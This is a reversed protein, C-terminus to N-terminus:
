TLETELRGDNSVLQVVKREILDRPFIAGCLDGNRLPPTTHFFYNRTGGMQSINSDRKLLAVLVVVGGGAGEESTVTM